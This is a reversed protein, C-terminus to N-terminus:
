SAEDRFDFVAKIVGSSGKSTVRTLAARYDELKFRHTVLPALDVRKEAMLRLALEMAHSRQGCWEEIDYAFAGRITLENLWLPTWDIGDLHTAVGILSVTGGTAAFRLAQEFSGGAGVCDFVVDAGGVVVDPGLVPKLTRAGLEACLHRELDKGRSKGLVVDAGLRRAQEAQFEYRALAVIRCMSGLGRLAAIVGLGIVGGGIVLVTDNDSPMSDLVAHLSIGFPEALVAEEDSLDDPVKLLQSRHAVFERSWSGGTDRCFGIFLGPAIQGRDWIDSQNQPRDDPNDIGRPEFSLLPNAVVREGVEFGDVDRGLEEIRGVNEHGLTFPFSTFVTTSTSTHFTISGIDTGCIGGYITRVRAWEQNHLRPPDVDRYRLCGVPGWYADPRLKALGQTALYRPISDTM